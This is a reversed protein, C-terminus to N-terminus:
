LRIEVLITSTFHERSCLLILPTVQPLNLLHIIPPTKFSFAFLNEEDDNLLHFVEMGKTEHVLYIGKSACDPLDVIERVLFGCLKQGVKM